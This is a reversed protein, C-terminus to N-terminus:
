KDVIDKTVLQLVALSGTIVGSLPVLQQLTANGSVMNFIANLVTEFERIAVATTKKLKTVKDEDGQFLPPKPKAIQSMQQRAINMHPILERMAKAIPVIEELTAARNLARKLTVVENRCEGALKQSHSRIRLYKEEDSIQEEDEVEEWDDDLAFATTIETPKVKGKPKPDKKAQQRERKKEELNLAFTKKSLYDMLHDSGIKYKTWVMEDEIPNRDILISDIHNCNGLSLPLEQLQNDSLNLSVLRTLHGFDEPLQKLMNNGLNLELLRIMGCFQDPIYTLSCGSLDLMELFELNGFTVPVTGLPNGSLNLDELTRCDGIKPSITIIKNNAVDLKELAKLGGISDGLKSLQNGNVFLAKLSVLGELDRGLETLQNGQLYLEELQAFESVNPWTSFKNFSLDLNKWNMHYARLSPPIIQLSLGSVDLELQNLQV